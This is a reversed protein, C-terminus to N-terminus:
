DHRESHDVDQGAAREWRNMLAADILVIALFGLLSGQAAIWYHLPWGWVVRDLDRAFWAPVFSVGVWALLLIAKTWVIRRAPLPAAQPTM